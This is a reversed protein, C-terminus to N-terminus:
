RTRPPAPLGVLVDRVTRRRLDTAVADAVSRDIVLLAQQVGRGVACAPNPGHLGLVPNDSQILRRVEDLTVAAADVALEWGGQAGPKSRVLGGIRLPGLIRRVYVPNTSTSTSTALTESGVTRAKGTWALFDARSGRYSSPTPLAPWPVM